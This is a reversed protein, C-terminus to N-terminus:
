SLSKSSVSSLKVAVWAFLPAAAVDAIYHVRQQILLAGIVLTLIWMVIRMVKNKTFFAIICVTAVHGSFFLDKLNVRGNYFTYELFPDSLPNIDAPPDLPVLLLTIVRLFQMFMYASLLRMFAVPQKAHTVIAYTICLYTLSFILISFNGPKGLYDGAWEEIVIGSRTETYGITLFVAVFMVALGSMLAIFYNRKVPTQWVSRWNDAQM